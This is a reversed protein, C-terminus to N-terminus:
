KLWSSEASASLSGGRLVDSALGVFDRLNDAEEAVDSASMNPRAIAFDRFSDGVVDVRRWSDEAHPVREWSAREGM